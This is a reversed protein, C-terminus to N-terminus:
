ETAPVGHRRRAQSARRVVLGLTGVALLALVSPAALLGVPYTLSAPPMSAQAPQGSVTVVGLPQMPFPEQTVEWHWVGAAPFQVEAVYYGLPGEPQGTFRHVEGTAESIIRIGTSTAAIPRVGHQRITYGVRYTEGSHFGDDPLADLTAVAWGGAQALSAGSLLMVIAVFVSSLLRPPM